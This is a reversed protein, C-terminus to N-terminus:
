KVQDVDGIQEKKWGKPWKVVSVAGEDWQDIAGRM